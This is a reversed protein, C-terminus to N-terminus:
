GCRGMRWFTTGIMPFNKKQEFEWLAEIRTDPDALRGFWDSGMNQLKGGQCSGAFGLIALIIGKQDMASPYEDRCGSPFSKRGAKFASGNLDPDGQSSYFM